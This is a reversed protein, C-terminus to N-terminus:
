QALGWSLINGALIRWSAQVSFTNELILSLNTQMGKVTNTRRIINRLTKTRKEAHQRKKEAFRSFPASEALPQQPTCTAEPSESASRSLRRVTTAGQPSAPPPTPARPSQAAKMEKYCKSCYGDWEPNGYFSCGQRCMLDQHMRHLHSGLKKAEAM